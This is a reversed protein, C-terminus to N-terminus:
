LLSLTSSKFGLVNFSKFDVEVIEKGCSDILHSTILLSSSPSRKLTVPCPEDVKLADEKSRNRLELLAPLSDLISSELSFKSMNTAAAPFPPDSWIPSSLSM